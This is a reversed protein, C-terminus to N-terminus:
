AQHGIGADTRAKRSTAIATRVARALEALSYPKLLVPGTPAQLASFSLSPSYGTTLLTSVHPREDSVWRALEYGSLTGPIVVDTFVLAIPTDSRLIDIAATATGAEIVDYGLALLRRVVVDRVADNDEVVLIPEGEGRPVDAAAVQGPEGEAESTSRPFYLDIRTGRGPESHLSVAGGADDVIQKVSSLGLGNGRGVEKTSFFPEFARKQVATSMGTGTDSVTLRVFDGTLGEPASSGRHLTENAAEISLEGGKPMAERANLALNLVVSEIDALDVRIPWIDAALRATVKVREGLTRELVSAAARVRESISVPVADIARRHALSLLRRNFSVGREAAELAKSIYEHSAANRDLTAEALQLNGSIVTLLNGFDHAISGAMHGVAELKRSRVLAEEALKRETIDMHTIVARRGNTAGYPVVHMLFWHRKEPENCQYEMCFRLRNGDLVQRIGNLARGADANNSSASRCIELYNLGPRAATAVPSGSAAFRSWADNVTLILGDSDIVVVEIPLANLIDDRDSHEEEPLALLGLQLDKQAQCPPASQAHTRRGAAALNVLANLTRTFM